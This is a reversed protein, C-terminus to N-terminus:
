NSSSIIGYDSKPFNACAYEGFYKIAARDYAKAAEIESTFHGLYKQKKNFKIHAYWEGDRKYWYVGKYKSSGGKQVKRNWQNQSNTVERLNNRQNNLGNGDIHDIQMDQSPKLIERHMSINRQKGNYRIGRYAYWINSDKRAVTWKWQNLFDYDSDDVLAVKGQSLSIFKM